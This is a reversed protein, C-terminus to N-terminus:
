YDDGGRKCIHRNQMDNGIGERIYPVLRRVVLGVEAIFSYSVEIFDHTDEHGFIEM